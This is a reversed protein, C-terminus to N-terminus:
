YVSVASVSDPTRQSLYFGDFLSSQSKASQKSSQAPFEPIPDTPPSPPMHEDESSDEDEDRTLEPPSSSHSPTRQLSLMAYDEEGDDEYEEEDEEEDEEEGGDEEIPQPAPDQTRSPVRQLAPFGADFEEDDEEYDDSDSSSDSAEEVEIVTDAWHIHTRESKQAGRVSNNFWSEQEQEAEALELMLSDLLNAHGPPNNTNIQCHHSLTCMGVLYRLNHDARSAEHSLKGRATHALYYTQTISM